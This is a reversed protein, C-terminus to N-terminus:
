QMTMVKDLASGFYDSNNDRPRTMNEGQYSQRWQDDRHDLHRRHVPTCQETCAACTDAAESHAGVSVGLGGPPGGPYTSFPKMNGLAQLWIQPVPLAMKVRRVEAAQSHLNNYM